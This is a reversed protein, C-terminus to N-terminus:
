KKYRKETVVYDWGPRGCKDCDDRVKAFPDLRRVLYEPNHIYDDLCKVCLCRINEQKEKKYFWLGLTKKLATNIRGLVEKDNVTGIYDSLEIQNVTRIQEMMVMSPMRLGFQEGLFIHSPLYRKKIVGTIAAVIVTPANRNYDDAQVVLVPRVGNQVSGINKGFDYYFIDGRCVNEKKMHVDEQSQISTNDSKSVGESM